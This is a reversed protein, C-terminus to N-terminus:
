KRNVLDHATLKNPQIKEGWYTTFGTVKCNAIEIVFGRGYKDFQFTLLNIRDSTLRRFHPFSGKFGKRRLVPIVLESLYKIMEKGSSNEMTKICNACPCYKENQEILVPYVKSIKNVYKEKAGVAPVPFM